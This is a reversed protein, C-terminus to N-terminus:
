QNRPSLHTPATGAEQIRARAGIVERYVSAMRDRFVNASYESFAREKAARGLRTRLDPDDLINQIAQALASSDNPPVTLGEQNHRAIHPVATPLDTNIVPCGAAMAEMQVLGYAEASTVSPLVLAREAHLFSKVEARTLKGLFHVRDALGLENAQRTLQEQLPGSGIIALQANTRSIADILVDLGKYGVLRGLFVVLRPFQDRKQQVPISQESDLASWFDLETGFPIVKTKEAYPKLSDFRDILSQHSIIIKDARQLTATVFPAVARKLMARGMVEAHWFVILGVHSPFHASIAMDSLPFPAHHVVIDTDRARKLLEFPYSFSIPTSFITGFSSVATVPVGDVHHSRSIGLKRAVLISNSFEGSSGSVLTSIVEPIGGEVDPKYIKYAHVVRHPKM